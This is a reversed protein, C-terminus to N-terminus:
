PCRAFLEVQTVYRLVVTTSALERVEDLAARRRRDPLIAISSESAARKVLGVPDLEQANAFRRLELAAFLRTDGLAERWAPRGDLPAHARHRAVVEAFAATLPDTSDLRNWILALASAPRLVRHIERLAEEARFWHFAQAATAADASADPLPISEATGEVAEGGAVEELLRRMEEVPEVAVVRAGTATLLRTLKGTGAGLDVVTRSRRLDLKGVLWAIADPPYSPRAQEYPEAARGFGAAALPHVDLALPHWAAAAVGAQPQPAPTPNSDM